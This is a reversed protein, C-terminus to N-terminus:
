KPKESQDNKRAADEGTIAAAARDYANQWSTQFNPNKLWGNAELLCAYLLLQPAYQTTWTTQNASSLPQPREYYMLEFAYAQDPTAAILFHEYDYDAYYRPPNTLTKNPWFTKCYEVTRELLYAVQATVPNTYSFSKTQRWREPKALVPSTTLLAGTITQQQGLNKIEIAIRNEALMIFRDIQAIFAQDSNRESYGYIDAVLSDYTMAAPATM